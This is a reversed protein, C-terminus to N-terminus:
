KARESFPTTYQIRLQWYCLVGKFVCPEPIKKGVWCNKILNRGEIDWSHYSLLRNVMCNEPLVWYSRTPANFYNGCLLVLIKSDDAFFVFFHAMKSMKIVMIRPTLMTVLCIVGNKDGVGQSRDTPINWKQIELSEFNLEVQVIKQDTFWTFCKCALFLM